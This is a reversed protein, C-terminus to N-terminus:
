HVFKAIEKASLGTIKEIVDYTFGNALMNKVVVIKTEHVGESKGELKGELKGKEIGVHIGEQYGIQKGEQRLHEAITM